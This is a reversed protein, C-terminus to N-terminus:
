LRNTHNVCKTQEPHKEKARGHRQRGHIVRGVARLPLGACRRRSAVYKFARCVVLSMPDLEVFM